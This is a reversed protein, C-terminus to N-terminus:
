PIDVIISGKTTTSEVLEWLDKHELLTKVKFRWMSFNTTRALKHRFTIRMMMWYSVFFNVVKVKMLKNYDVLHATCGRGVSQCLTLKELVMNSKYSDFAQIDM